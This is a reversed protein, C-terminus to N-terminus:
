MKLSMSYKGKANNVVIQNCVLMTVICLIAILSFGGIAVKALSTKMQRQIRAFM